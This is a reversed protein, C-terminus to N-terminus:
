RPARDPLQETTGRAPPPVQPQLQCLEKALFVAETLAEGIPKRDGIAVDSVEDEAIGVLRSRAVDLTDVGADDAGNESVRALYVRGSGEAVFIGAVAKKNDRIIAAGRVREDSSERSYALYGEFVGALIFSTAALYLFRRRKLSGVVAALLACVLVVGLAVFFQGTTLDGKFLLLMAVLAVAIFCFMALGSEGSSAQHAATQMKKSTQEHIRRTILVAGVYLLTLAVVAVLAVIVQPVLTEAGIVLLDQSPVVGLAPAAPFGAANLRAWVVAGGVFTVFGVVGVGTAVTALVPSIQSWPTAERAEPAEEIKPPEPCASVAVPTGLGEGLM